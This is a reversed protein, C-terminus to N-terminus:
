YLTSSTVSMSYAHINVKRVLITQGPIVQFTNLPSVVRRDFYIQDYLHTSLHYTNKYVNISTRKLATYDTVKSRRIEFIINKNKLFM